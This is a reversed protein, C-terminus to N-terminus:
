RLRETQMRNKKALKAGKRSTDKETKERWSALRIQSKPNRIAWEVNRM